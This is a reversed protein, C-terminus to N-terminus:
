LSSWRRSKESASAWRLRILQYELGGDGGPVLLDTESKPSFHFFISKKIPLFQMKLGISYAFSQMGLPWFPQMDELQHGLVIGLTFDRSEPIKFKKLTEFSVFFAKKWHSYRFFRNKPVPNKCLSLTESCGSPRPVQFEIRTWFVIASITCVKNWSLTLVHSFRNNSKGRRDLAVDNQTNLPLM